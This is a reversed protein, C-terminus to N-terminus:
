VPLNVFIGRLFSELFIIVLVPPAFLWVFALISYLIALVTLWILRGILVMLRMFVSVLRGTLDHQGYMPVFFNRVWLVINYRKWDYSLSRKVWRVVDFFGTTYWWFPFRIVSGALDLFFFRFVSGAKSPMIFTYCLFFPRGLM